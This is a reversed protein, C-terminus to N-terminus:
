RVRMIAQGNLTYSGLGPIHIPMNITASTAVQIYTLVSDGSSCTPQTPNQTAPTSSCSYFVTPTAVVGSIDNASEAAVSKIGTSDSATRTSESGYTAGARAADSVEISDYALMAFEAAGLLIPVLMLVVVALEILASGSSSGMLSRCLFGKSRGAGSSNFVEATM